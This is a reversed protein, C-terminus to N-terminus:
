VEKKKKRISTDLKSDTLVPQPPKGINNTLQKVKEENPHIMSM